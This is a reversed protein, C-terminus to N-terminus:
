FLVIVKVGFMHSGMHLTWVGVLRVKDHKIDHVEILLMTGKPNHAVTISEWLLIQLGFVPTLSPILLCSLTDCERGYDFTKPGIQRREVWKWSDEKMLAAGLLAAPGQYLTKSRAKHQDIFCFIDAPHLIPDGKLLPALDPMKNNLLLLDSPEPSPAVLSCPVISFLLFSRSFHSHDSNSHASRNLAWPQVRIGCRM